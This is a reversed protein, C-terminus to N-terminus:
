RRWASPSSGTPRTTARDAGCRGCRRSPSRACSPIATAFRAPWGPVDNMTGNEALSAAGMRRTEPTARDDLAALAEAHGLPAADAAAAAGFLLLALVGALASVAHVSRQRRDGRVGARSRRRPRLDPRGGRRRRDRSAGDAHAGQLGLHQHARDYMETANWIRLPAEGGFVFIKDALATAALGGAASALPTGTRWSDTAPDYIEVNAYQTGLFSERGGLAWVRGEFGVAALHDRATPMANVSSWRDAAVDYVEHANTARDAAGGLAYLRGGVAAVGLGGRPTPMQARGRWTNQAPDYEFVTGLTTWQVRGGTYGGVVFLRGDVVAAAPHHIPIPLPAVNRWDDTAPDYVEVIDVPEGTSGFGGIVYVKGGLAAM